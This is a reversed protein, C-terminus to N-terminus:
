SVIQVEDNVQMNNFFAKADDPDLHVCGASQRQLSGGHLAEGPAFFVSYPMQAHDYERSVHYRDKWTVHFAGTPTEYGTAGTTIPVPGRLVHGEDDTLWAKQDSISVCATATTECPLASAPDTGDSAPTPATPAALAPVAAHLVGLSVVGASM